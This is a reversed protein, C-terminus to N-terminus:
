EPLFIFNFVYNKRDSRSFNIKPDLLAFPTLQGKRLAYARYGYKSCIEGIRDKMPRENHVDEVEVLLNPRFKKLTEAAGELVQMEFGEVDIKIFGINDINCDDLRKVPVEIEIHGRDPRGDPPPKMHLSAGLNSYGTDSKRVHLKATGTENGLAIPYPTVRDGLYFTMMNYMKPHPEFAHVSKSCKLMAYAYIGKNAGVDLSAKEPNCLFPLLRIEPVKRREKQYRLHIYLQPPLLYKKLKEEFNLPPTFTEAREEMTSM